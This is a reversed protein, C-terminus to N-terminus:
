FDLSPGSGLLCLGIEFDTWIIPKKYTLLLSDPHCLGHSVIREFFVARPIPIVIFGVNLCLDNGYSIGVHIM